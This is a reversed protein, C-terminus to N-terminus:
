RKASPRSAPPAALVAAGQAGRSPLLTTPDVFGETATIKPLGPQNHSPPKPGKTVLTTSAGPKAQVVTPAVAKAQNPPPVDVLNLKGTRAPRAAAASSAAMPAPRSRQALERKQETPLTRYAEWLAQRDSTPVDKLEQYSQRARGREQPSLRAWESMRAQLRQRGDPSMREYRGAVVLWKAKRNADLTPWQAQLPALAQRQVPTLEAWTPASENRVAPPAVARDPPGAHLLGTAAALALM